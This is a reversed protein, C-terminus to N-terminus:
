LEIPKCSKIPYICLAKIRVKANEAFSKEICYMPRQHEMMNQTRSSGLQQLYSIGLNRLRMRRSQRVFIWASIILVIITLLKDPKITADFLDQLLVLLM